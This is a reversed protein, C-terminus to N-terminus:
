VVLKILAPSLFVEIFSCGIFILLVTVYVQIYRKMSGRLNIDVGRFLYKFLKIGFYLAYFGLFLSMLLTILQHPFLYTISKLIGNLHYTYIISSLSFGFIFSSTALSFIIIPIGIISIGLLFIFTVFSINGILSNILASKYDIDNNKISTFFSDLSTTVLAHDSKNLIIAYIIGLLMGIIMVIILFIYIKKQERLKDTVKTKVKKLKLDM